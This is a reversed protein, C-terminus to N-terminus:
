KVDVGHTVIVHTEIENVFTEAQPAWYKDSIHAKDVRKVDKSLITTEEEGNIDLLTTNESDNSTQLAADEDNLDSANVNRTQVLITTEESGNEANGMNQQNLLTTEESGDEANSMSQQNLLTTEESGDEANSMSQQNLLTTEESGDENFSDAIEAEIAKIEAELETEDLMEFNEVPRIKYLDMDIKDTEDLDEQSTNNQLLTTEESGLANQILKATESDDTKLLETEEEGFSDNHQRNQKNVGIVIRDSLNESDEEINTNIIEHSDDTNSHYDSYYQNIKAKSPTPSLAKGKRPKGRKIRYYDVLDNKWVIFVVVLLLIFGFIALYFSIKNLTDITDIM